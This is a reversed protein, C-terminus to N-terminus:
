NNASAIPPPSCKCLAPKPSTKLPGGTDVNLWPNATSLRREGLLVLSSGLRSSLVLLAALPPQDPIQIDLDAPFVSGQLCEYSVVRLLGKGKGIRVGKQLSGRERLDDLNRIIKRANVGVSDQRKKHNDIEELVKLPVFIDNNSFKFISDADTLYVSTDLVYNKKKSM